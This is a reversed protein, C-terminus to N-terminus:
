LLTITLELDRLASIVPSSAASTTTAPPMAARIRIPKPIQNWIEQRPRRASASWVRPRGFRAHSIMMM